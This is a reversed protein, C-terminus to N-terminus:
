PHRDHSLLPQLGAMWGPSLLRRTRARRGHVAVTEGADALAAANRSHRMVEFHGGAPPAAPQPRNLCELPLFETFAARPQSPRRDVNFCTRFSPKGRMGM